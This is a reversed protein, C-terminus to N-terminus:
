LTWNGPRHIRRAGQIRYRTLRHADIKGTGSWGNDTTTRERRSPTWSSVIEEEDLFVREQSGPAVSIEDDEM